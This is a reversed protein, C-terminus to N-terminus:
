SFLDTQHSAGIALNDNLSLGNYTKQSANIVVRTKTTTSGKFVCHHPLYNAESDFEKEFPVVEMHDLDLYEQMFARYDVKLKPNKELRRELQFQSAMALRRSNGLDPKKLFISLCQFLKNARNM